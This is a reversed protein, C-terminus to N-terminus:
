LIQTCYRDYKDRLKTFEDMLRDTQADATAQIAAQDRRAQDLSSNSRLLQSRLEEIEHHLDLSTTLVCLYVSSCPLDLSTTLVCVYFSLLLIGNYPVPKTKRTQLTLSVSIPNLIAIQSIPIPLDIQNRILNKCYNRNRDSKKIISFNENDFFITLLQFNLLQFSEMYFIEVAFRHNSISLRFNEIILIEIDLKM